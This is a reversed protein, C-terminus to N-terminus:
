PRCGITSLRPLSTTLTYPRAYQAGPTNHLSHQTTLTTHTRMALNAYRKSRKRCVLWVAEVAPIVFSISIYKVRVQRVDGHTIKRYNLISIINISKKKTM